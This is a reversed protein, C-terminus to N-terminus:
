VLLRTLFIILLIMNVATCVMGIWFIGERLGKVRLFLDYDEQMKRHSERLEKLMRVNYGVMEEVSKKLAEEHSRFAREATDTVAKLMDCEYEKISNKLSTTLAKNGEETSQWLKRILQTEEELEMKMETLQRKSEEELTSYQRYSQALEEKLLGNELDMRKQLNMQHLQEMPSNVATEQPKASSEQIDIEKLNM